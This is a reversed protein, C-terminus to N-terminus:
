AIGLEFGLPLVYKIKTKLSILCVFQHMIYYSHNLKYDGVIKMFHMCIQAGLVVMFFCNIAENPPQTENHFCGTYFVPLSRGAEVDFLHRQRECICVWKTRIIM